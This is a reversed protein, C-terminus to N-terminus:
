PQEGSWDHELPGGAPRVALGVGANAAVRSHLVEGLRVEGPDTVLYAGDVAPGQDGDTDQSRRGSYEITMVAACPLALCVEAGARLHWLMLM